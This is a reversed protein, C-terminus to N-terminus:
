EPRRIILKTRNLVVTYSGSEGHGEANIADYGHAAAVSGVDSPMRSTLEARDYGMDALKYLTDDILKVADDYTIVRASPDLTMTEVYSIPSPTYTRLESVKGMPDVIRRIRSAAQVEDLTVSDPILEYRMMTVFDELDKGELPLESAKERILREQTDRSLDSFKAKKSREQGLSTYHEMEKKIGDSLSGTYDAACYMGQGYQAGGASCDVYWKGDYLMDRYADITDQDPASYSRQMILGGGNNAQRVALDFEDADVIRPLGDFGQAAMVDEIEFDYQDPRRQWTGLIDQGEVVGAFGNGYAIPAAETAIDAYWDGPVRGWDNLYSEASTVPKAKKWQRYTMGKPLREWREGKEDAWDGRKGDFGVVRGNARCRCNWIEHGPGSPDGPWRCGNSFREGTKVREGDLARHSSRTRGDLTALWEIEMDIGLREAREFSSMRGANEASTTATRAARFAADRNQGFVSETRKVINPISEGQLIGQTIASAFKQRNWRIDKAPDVDRRMSQLGMAVRNMYPAPSVEKVLQGDEMGGMLYRIADENVLTFGTDAKVARDVEFAARNANEAYVRPLSDNLMDAAKENARHASESLGDVMDSFWQERTAQSQLWRKHAQMAEQTDDLAKERQERERAFKALWKEQKARMEKAAQRYEKAMRRELAELESDTWKRADDM